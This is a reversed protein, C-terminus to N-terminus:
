YRFLEVGAAEVVSKQKLKLSKCFRSFNQICKAHVKERAGGFKVSNRGARVNWM